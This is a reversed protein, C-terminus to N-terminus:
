SIAGDCLSADYDSYLLTAGHAMLFLDGGDGILKRVRNL